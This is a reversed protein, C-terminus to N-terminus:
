RQELFAPWHRVVVNGERLTASTRLAFTEPSELDVNRTFFRLPLGLLSRSSCASGYRRRAPAVFM